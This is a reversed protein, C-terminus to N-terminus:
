EWFFSWVMPAKLFRVWISMYSGGDVVSGGKDGASPTRLVILELKIMKRDLVEDGRRPTGKKM